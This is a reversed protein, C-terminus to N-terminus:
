KIHVDRGTSLWIVYGPLLREFGDSRMSSDDVPVNCLVYRCVASIIIRNRNMAQVHWNNESGM